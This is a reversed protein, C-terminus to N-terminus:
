FKLIQLIDMNFVMRLMEVLICIDMALIPDLVPAPVFNGNTNASFKTKFVRDFAWKTVNARAFVGTGKSVIRIRIDSRDTYDTGGNLVTIGTVQNNTVEAIAFAGKGRGSLDTIEVSPTAVYDQGSNGVTITKIEGNVLHTDQAVSATADFGYTVELDHDQTYNQGADIVSISTVKGDIIKASFTAGNGTPNQIRFLPQIDEEFGIGNELISVSEIGGFSIEEYDQPSFAEVGNIFLGVPLNGTIEERTNKEAVLPISKLIHQNRIDFGVGRFAGIPHRPLGASTVYAYNEDKFVSFTETPINEVATNIQVDSSSSLRGVENM